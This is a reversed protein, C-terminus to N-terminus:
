TTTVLARTVSPSRARDLGVAREREAIRPLVAAFLDVRADADIAPRQGIQAMGEHEVVIRTSPLSDPSNWRYPLYSVGNPKPLICISSPTAYPLLENSVAVAESRNSPLPTRSSPM